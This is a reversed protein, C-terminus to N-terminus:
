NPINHPLPRTHFCHCASAILSLDCVGCFQYTALCIRGTNVADCLPKYDGRQGQGPSAAPPVTSWSMWLTLARLKGSTVKVMGAMQTTRRAWGRLTSSLVGYLAQAPLTLTEAVQPPSKQHRIQSQHWAQICCCGMMCSPGLSKSITILHALDTGSHAQSQMAHM